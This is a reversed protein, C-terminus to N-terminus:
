NFNFSNFSEQPVEPFYRLAMGVIEIEHLDEKGALLYTRKFRNERVLFFRTPIKANTAMIFGRLIFKVVRFVIICAM